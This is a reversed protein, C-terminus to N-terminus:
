PLSCVGPRPQSVVSNCDALLDILPALRSSSLTPRSCCMLPVALVTLTLMFPGWDAPLVQAPTRSYAISNSDTPVQSLAFCWTTLLRQATTQLSCQKEAAEPPARAAHYSYLFVDRTGCRLPWAFVSPTNLVYM